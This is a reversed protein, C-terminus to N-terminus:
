ESQQYNAFFEIPKNTIEALKLLKGFKIREPNKFLAKLERPEMGMKQNISEYVNWSLNNKLYEELPSTTKTTKKDM